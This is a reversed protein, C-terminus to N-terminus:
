EIVGYNEGHAVHGTAENDRNIEDALAQDVEAMSYGLKLLNSRWSKLSKSIITLRDEM